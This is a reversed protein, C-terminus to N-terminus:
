QASSKYHPAPFQLVAASTVEKGSASPSLARAIIRRYAYWNRVDAARIGDKWHGGPPVLVAGDHGNVLLFDAFERCTAPLKMGLSQKVLELAMWPVRSDGRRWRGATALSVRLLESLQNDSLNRTCARWEDHDVHARWHRRYRDVDQKHRANAVSKKHKKPKNKMDFVSTLVLLFLARVM